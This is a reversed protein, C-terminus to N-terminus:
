SFLEPECKLFNKVAACTPIGSQGGPQTAKIAAAASAFRLRTELNENRALAAAYAGHFVDGCGTTDVVDVKFAPFFQPEVNGSEQVWCGNEGCTVVVVERAASWLKRAAAGPTGQSSIALAFEQPVILHNVAQMWEEFGDFGSREIDGVIPIENKRAIKMARLTGDIGWRDAFLVRTAGIIEDSPANEDAGSFGKIEYFINRTGGAGVLIRSHV